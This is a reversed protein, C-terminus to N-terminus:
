PAVPATPATPAEIRQFEPAKVASKPDLVFAIGNGNFYRGNQTIDQCLGTIKKGILTDGLEMVSKQFDADWFSLQISTVANESFKPLKGTISIAPIFSVNLHLVPLKKEKTEAMKPAATIVGTFEQFNAM